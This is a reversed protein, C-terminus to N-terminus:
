RSLVLLKQVGHNLQVLYTGPPLHSIDLPEQQGVTTHFVTQGLANRIHVLMTHQEAGLQIHLVDKAPNPYIRVAPANAVITSTMLENNFGFTAEKIIPDGTGNPIRAYSQDATQEDFDIRNVINGDPDVLIASEGGASLKFSTHLPGQEEDDDAWIILYEGAAITTGDPFTWKTLNNDNDTLSYGTLDITANTTNYLEIWDDFEGAEDSATVDNSAMIENIAVDDSLEVSENVQYIFVDHEAGAPFFSATQADDDAIAEVYYRVYTSASFAPIDGEFIGDNDEDTMVTHEFAGMFGTAYYLNVRHIGLSSTAQIAAQVRVVEDNNPTEGEGAASTFTLNTINLGARDVENHSTLFEYREQVTERVEEVGSVFQNYNYIRKPDHQVRQDLIASFADIRSNIDEPVFHEALVTRLHALYASAFNM